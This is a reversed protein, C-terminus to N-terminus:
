KLGHRELLQILYSRDMRAGRAAERVNGQTRRLLATLYAVEFEEVVRKRAESYRQLPEEGPRVPAVAAGRAAEGFAPLEGTALLALVTNKLERVNGPWDHAEFRRLVSPSLLDDVGEAVGEEALFHQILGMLDDLRDRLPPVNLTVVALRYFLDLRFTGVNVAAKLDRHTAAVVRADFALESSGGVRRYSRRELAGLLASQQEFPLEGIEDLFLTGGQAREFAGPRAREAGTFAGREHGMLEAILLNPAVAGCDFTIFPGGRRPGSDHLARAVLEKGSGSEGCVLVVNARPSVKEIRSTLARISPSRGLIGKYGAPSGLEIEVEHGEVIAVQSDGLTIVVGPEVIAEAGRLLVRDIKTGNTSHHDVIMLQGGRRLLEAHYRSVTRDSLVLDNGDASGIQAREAIEVVAGRNPGRVVELRLVRIPVGSV